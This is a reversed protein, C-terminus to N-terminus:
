GYNSLLLNIWVKLRRWMDKNRVFHSSMALINLFLWRLEWCSFQEPKTLGLGVREWCFIIFYDRSEWGNIKRRSILEYWPLCPFDIQTFAMNCQELTVQGKIAETFKEAKLDLSFINGLVPLTTLRPGPPMNRFEYVVMLYHLMLLLLLFLLFNGLTLSDFISATSASGM